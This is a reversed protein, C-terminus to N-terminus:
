RKEVQFRVHRGEDEGQGGVGDRSRVIESTQHVERTVVVDKLSANKSSTSAKSSTGQEIIHQYNKMKHHRM